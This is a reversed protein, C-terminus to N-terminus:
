SLCGLEGWLRDMTRVAEAKRRELDVFLLSAHERTRQAQAESDRIRAQVVWDVILSDFFFDAFTLFPTMDVVRTQGGHEYVDGIERRFRNLDTQARLAHERAEDMRYHKTATVLFGGGLMDWIGWGGASSLAAILDDLAAKAARGAALAEDIERVKAELRGIEQSKEVIGRAAEGTAGGARVLPEHQDELDMLEEIRTRIEQIEVSLASCENKAADYKLRAALNEQREKQLQEVKSGLVTYFLSHLSTRELRAVDKDEKRLTEALEKRRAELRTLDDKAQVLREKLRKREALKVTLAAIRNAPDRPEM